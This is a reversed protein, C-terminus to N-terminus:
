RLKRSFGRLFSYWVSVTIKRTLNQLQLIRALKIKNHADKIDPVSMSENIQIRKTYRQNYMYM